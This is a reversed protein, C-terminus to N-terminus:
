PNEKSRPLRNKELIWNRVWPPQEIEGKSDLAPTIGLSGLPVGGRRKQPKREGGGGVESIKV